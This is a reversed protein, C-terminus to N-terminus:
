YIQKMYLYLLNISWLINFLHKGNRHQQQNQQSPYDTIVPVDVTGIQYEYKRNNAMDNQIEIRSRQNQRIKEDLIKRKNLRENAEMEERYSDLPDEGYGPLSQVRDAPSPQHPQRNLKLHKVARQPPSQYTNRLVNNGAKSLSSKPNSRLKSSISKMPVPSMGHVGNHYEQWRPGEEKSRVKPSYVFLPLFFYLFLKL